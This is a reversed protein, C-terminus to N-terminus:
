SSDRCRQMLISRYYYLFCRPHESSGQHRLFSLFFKKLIYLLSLFLYKQKIYTSQELLWPLLVFRQYRWKKQNRLLYIYCTYVNCAWCGRSIYKLLTSIFSACKHNIFFIDDLFHFVFRSSLVVIHIYMLILHVRWLSYENHTLKVSTRLDAM